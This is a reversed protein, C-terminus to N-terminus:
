SCPLILWTLVLSGSWDCGVDFTRHEPYDSDLDQVLRARFGDATPMLSAAEFGFFVGLRPYFAKFISEKASFLALLLDDRQDAASEELWSREEPLPVQEYLEPAPRREEIDIGVGDTQELPAVLAVGLHSIHSISGAIGSPWM